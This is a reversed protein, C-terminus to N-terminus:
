RAIQQVCDLNGDETEGLQVREVPGSVIEEVLELGNKIKGRM